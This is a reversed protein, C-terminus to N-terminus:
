AGPVLGMDVIVFQLPQNIDSYSDFNLWYQAISKIVDSTAATASIGVLTCAGAMTSSQCIMRTNQRMWSNTYEGNRSCLLSLHKHSTHRRWTPNEARALLAIGSTQNYTITHEIMRTYKPALFWERKKGEESMKKQNVNYFWEHHASPSLSLSLM